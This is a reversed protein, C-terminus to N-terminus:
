VISALYSLIFFDFKDVDVVTLVFTYICIQILLQSWNFHLTNRSSFGEQKRSYGTLYMCIKLDSGAVSFRWTPLRRSCVCPCIQVRKKPNHNMPCHQNLPLECCENCKNPPLKWSYITPYTERWKWVFIHKHWEYEYAPRFLFSCSYVSGCKLDLKVYTKTEWVSPTWNPKKIEVM